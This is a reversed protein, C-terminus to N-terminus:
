VTLALSIATRWCAGSLPGTRRAHRFVREDFAPGVIARRLPPSIDTNSAGSNSLILQNRLDYMPSRNVFEPGGGLEWSSLYSRTARNTRALIRGHCPPNRSTM